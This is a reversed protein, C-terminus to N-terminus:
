RKDYNMEIKMVLIGSQCRYETARGAGVTPPLAGRHDHDSSPCVLLSSITCIYPKPGARNSTGSSILFAACLIHGAPFHCHAHATACRQNTCPIPPGFEQPM